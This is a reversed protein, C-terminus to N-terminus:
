FRKEVSLLYSYPSDLKSKTRQSALMVASATVSVGVGALLAISSPMGALIAASTPAATFFSAKLFGNLSAEWGQAKLSKRLSRLAPLVNNKYQDSLAQRAAEVSSDAPVESALRSIEKRYVALEEKHSEKFALLEGVSAEQPIDITQVTMDLLLAPYVQAPLRRPHGFADFYGHRRRHSFEPDTAGFPRGQRVTVALKDANASETVLGLGLRGALKTALLTMYFDAFSRPVSYFGDERLSSRLYDNMMYPLKEPHVRVLDNLFPSLKGPHLRTRHESGILLPAAAPDTLYDLVSDTLEQIEQMDSAVKVPILVGSDALAKATESSYPERISEPVITRLEDWFLVASRLWRENQVDIYPYYLASSAAVPM